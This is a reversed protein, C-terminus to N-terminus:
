QLKGLAEVLDEKLYCLYDHVGSMVCEVSKYRKYTGEM